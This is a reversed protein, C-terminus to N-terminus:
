NGNQLGDLIQQLIRQNSRPLPHKAIEEPEVWMWKEQRKRNIKGGVLECKFPHLTVSFHTYAHGIRQMRRQISIEINFEDKLERILCQELTENGERKGGPFEWLGGLLGNAPRQDILVHTGSWIVGVAIEYHPKEKVAVKVPLEAPNDLTRFALCHRAVPCGTCKPSGPTCVVAGLEMMAQNYDGAYGTPLLQNAAEVIRTRVAASKPSEAIRLIRALVRVVNGDVVALDRNFAISALAAATYPGIGPVKLLDAYTDPLIGGLEDVVMRAGRHLNRARAYYGMGEWVKLVADVPARALAQITPFTELFSTYYPKVTEVQTQQLM